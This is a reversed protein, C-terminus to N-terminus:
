GASRELSSVSLDLGGSQRVSEFTGVIADSPLHGHSGAFQPAAAFVGEALVLSPNSEAWRVLGLPVLGVTPRRGLLTGM